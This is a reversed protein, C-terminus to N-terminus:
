QAGGQWSCATATEWSVQRLTCRRRCPPRWRTIYDVLLTPLELPRRDREVQEGLLSEPIDHQAGQVRDELTRRGALCELPQALYVDVQADRFALPEDGFQLEPIPRRRKGIYHLLDAFPQGPAIGEPHRDHERAIGVEPSDEPRDRVTKGMQGAECLATLPTASHKM